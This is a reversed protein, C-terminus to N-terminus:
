PINLENLTLSKPAIALIIVTNVAFPVLFTQEFIKTTIGGKANTTIEGKPTKTVKTRTAGLLNTKNPTIEGQDQTIRTKTKGKRKPM